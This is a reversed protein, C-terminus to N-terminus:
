SQGGGLGYGEKALLIPLFPWHVQEALGPGEVQDWIEAKAVLFLAWPAASGLFGADCSCLVWSLPRTGLLDRGVSCAWGLQLETVVTVTTEVVLPGPPKKFLM